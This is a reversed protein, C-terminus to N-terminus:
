FIPLRNGAQNKIFKTHKKNKDREKRLAARRSEWEKFDEASMKAKM